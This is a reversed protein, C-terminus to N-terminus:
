EKHKNSHKNIKIISDIHFKFNYILKIVKFQIGLFTMLALKYVSADLYFFPLFCLHFIYLLLELDNSDQVFGKFFCNSKNEFTQLDIEPTTGPMDQMWHTLVKAGMVGKIMAVAKKSDEFTDM